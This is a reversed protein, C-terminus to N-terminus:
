GEEISYKRGKYKMNEDGWYFSEDKKYPFALEVVGETIQKSIGNYNCYLPKPYDNSIAVQWRTTITGGKVDVYCPCIYFTHQRDIYQVYSDSYPKMTYPLEKEKGKVIELASFEGAGMFNSYCKIFYRDDTLRNVQLVYKAKKEVAFEKPTYEDGLFQKFHYVVKEEGDARMVMASEGLPIKALDVEAESKSYMLCLKKSDTDVTLKEITWPANCCMVYLDARSKRSGGIRIKSLVSINEAYWQKFWSYLKKYYYCELSHEKSKICAAGCMSYVECIQCQPFHEELCAKHKGDIVDDRMYLCTYENGNLDLKIRDSNICYTEGWTYNRNHAALLHVFLPFYRQLPRGTAEYFALFENLIDKQQEVLSDYDAKALAFEKNTQNTVHMIHPYFSLRCKTLFEKKIFNDYIKRLDTNGHYITCSVGVSSYGFPKSFADYGRMETDSGDYSLVISINHEQLYERYKELLVGNTSVTFDTDPFNEVILKIKDIYLLPEGGMFKIEDPNFTKLKEFLRKFGQATPEERGNDERHCYKCNLNCKSGMYITARRM